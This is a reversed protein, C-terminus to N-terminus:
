LVRSEAKKFEIKIRCDVGSSPSQSGHGLAFFGHDLTSGQVLVAFGVVLCGLVKQGGVLIIGFRGWRLELAIAVGAAAICAKLM